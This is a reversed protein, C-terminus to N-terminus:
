SGNHNSRKWSITLWVSLRSGGVKTVILLSGSKLKYIVVFYSMTAALAGLTRTVKHRILYLLVLALTVGFPFPGPHAGGVAEAIGGFQEVMKGVYNM